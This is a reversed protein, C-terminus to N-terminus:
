EDRPSWAEHKAEDFLDILAQRTHIGMKAYIRKVYTNVTGVSLYLEEAARKM